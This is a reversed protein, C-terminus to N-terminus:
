KIATAFIRKFVIGIGESTEKATYKERFGEIFIRKKGEPLPSLYPHFGAGKFFDVVGNADRFRSVYDRVFVTVNVFGVRRLLAEYEEVSPFYWPFEWSKYYKRLGLQTIVEEMATIVDHIFGKAGLQIGLRGGERLGKRFSRFMSEHTLIWQLASNSFIVDFSSSFRLNRVDDKEFRVNKVGLEQANKRALKIMGESADVGTVQGHPTLYALKVTLGGTGCGVDLINMGDRIKLLDILDLGVSYQPKSTAEYDKANWHFLETGDM